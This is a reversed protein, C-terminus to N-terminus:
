YVKMLQGTATVYVRGAALGGGAAATNDAYVPIDFLSLGGGQHLYMRKISVGSGSRERFAIGNTSGGGAVDENSIEWWYTPNSTYISVFGRANASDTRSQFRAVEGSVNGVIHLPTLPAPIAGIGVNGGAPQFVLPLAAFGQHIVQVEGRAFAGSTNFAVAIQKPTSPVADTILLANNGVTQKITVPQSGTGLIAEGGPTTMTTVTLTGVNALNYGGANVNGGWNQMDNALNNLYSYNMPEGAVFDNRSLWAM